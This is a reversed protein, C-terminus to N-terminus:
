LPFMAFYPEAEKLVRAFSPREMLRHLYAGTNPHSNGFPRVRNAYYLAPAAACDAMGFADGMVWSKGALDSEIMGLSTDIQRRAEDVGWADRKDEPRLRDAVIKQMPLHIYLDLFRDRLRTQRALDADDPLLRVPGRYHQDLYEIITSSEPVVRDRAADKLVPFKGIPWVSLLEARSTENSLDILKAEFVTRNEYLPILVKWCFSSLPHYYLTLSM